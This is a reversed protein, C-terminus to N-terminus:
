SFLETAGSDSPEDGCECCGLARGPLYSVFLVMILGFYLFYKTLNKVDNSALTCIKKLRLLSISNFLKYFNRNKSFVIESKSEESYGYDANVVLADYM